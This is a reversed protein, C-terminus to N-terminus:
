RGSGPARNGKVRLGPAKAHAQSATVVVWAVTDGYLQGAYGETDAGPYEDSRPVSVKCAAWACALGLMAGAYAGGGGLLAGQTANGPDSQSWHAALLIGLAAGAIAGLVAGSAKVITRRLAHDSM